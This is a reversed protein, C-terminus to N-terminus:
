AAGNGPGRASVEPDHAKARLPPQIYLRCGDDTIPPETHTQWQERGRAKRQCDSCLPKAAGPCRAIDAPLTMCHFRGLSM